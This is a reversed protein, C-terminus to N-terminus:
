LCTIHPLTSEDRIPCHGTWSILHKQTHRLPNPPSDQLRDSQGAPLGSSAMPSEITRAPDQLTRPKQRPLSTASNELTDM